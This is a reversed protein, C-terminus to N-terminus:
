SNLVFIFLLLDTTPLLFQPLFELYSWGASRGCFGGRLESFIKLASVGGFFFRECLEGRLEASLTRPSFSQKAPHDSETESLNWLRRAQGVLL